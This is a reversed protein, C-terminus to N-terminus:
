KPGSGSGSTTTTTTTSTGTSTTAAGTAPRATPDQSPGGTASTSFSMVQVRNADPSQAPSASSYFMGGSSGGDSTSSTTTSNIVMRTGQGSNAGAPLVPYVSPTVAGGAMMMAGNAPAPSTSFALGNQMMGIWSARQVYADAAESGLASTVDNKAQAALDQIAARRQPFTLSADANISQSQAAYTDRAAAVTDTTTAPLNLRSVLSDLARMEPDAARRLATYADDGVAARMDTQLQAAADARQKMADSSIRGSPDSALAAYKDDYAKQLAYLKNFEDESTIADGYRARLTQASSSTREQYEALEGPSLLAAIDRDRESNLLKLKDRDSALQVGGSGSFKSNMDQYDELIRRLAERKDAPLFSMSALAPNGDLALSDGLVKTLGEYLERRAQSSAERSAASNGSRWWRKDDNKAQLARIRDAYRSMVEGLALKRALEPPLGAAQLAALDGSALAAKLKEMADSGSNVAPTSSAHANAAARAPDVSANASRTYLLAVLAVNAALSATLLLTSTKM